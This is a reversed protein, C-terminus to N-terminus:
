GPAQLVLSLRDLEEVTIEVDLGTGGDRPDRPDRAGGRGAAALKAVARCAEPNRPVACLLLFERLHRLLFAACGANDAHSQAHALTRPSLAGNANAGAHRGRLLDTALDRDGGGGSGDPGSTCRSVAGDECHVLLFMSVLWVPLERASSRAPRLSRSNPHTGQQGRPAPSPGSASGPSPGGGDGRASGADSVHSGSRVSGM